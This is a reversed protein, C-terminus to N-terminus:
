LVTSVGVTSLSHGKKGMRVKNALLFLPNEAHSHLTDYRQATYSNNEEQMIM